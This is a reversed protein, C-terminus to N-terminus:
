HDRSEIYQDILCELDEFRDIATGDLCNDAAFRVAAIEEHPYVILQEGKDGHSAISRLSCIRADDSCRSCNFNYNLYWLLGYYPNIPDKTHILSYVVDENLIRQGQYIGGQSLMEGIKLLDHPNMVLHAMCYEHQTPDNLWVVEQICLPKFLRNDLFNFINRCTVKQVIGGILNVAKNNIYFCSGPPNLSDACLAYQVIDMIKNLEEIECAPRLGSTQNLIQRLTICNKGEQNWEPYFYSVPVDFSEIQKEHILIAIAIGAISQTIAGSDLLKICSPTRYEFLLKGNQSILVTETRTERCRQAIRALIDDSNSAANGVAHWAFAFIFFLLFHYRRKM